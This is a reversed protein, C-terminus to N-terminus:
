CPPQDAAAPRIPSSSTSFAPLMQSIDREPARQRPWWSAPNPIMPSGRTRQGDCRHERSAASGIKDARCLNDGPGFGHGARVSRSSMGSNGLKDNAMRFDNPLRAQCM